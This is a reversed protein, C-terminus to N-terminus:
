CDSADTLDSGALPSLQTVSGVPLLDVESSM